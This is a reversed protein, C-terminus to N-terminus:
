RSPNIILADLESIDPSSMSDRGDFGDPLVTRAAGCMCTFHPREPIQSGLQGSPLGLPLHDFAPPQLGGRPLGGSGRPMRWPLEGTGERKLTNGPSQPARRSSADAPPV